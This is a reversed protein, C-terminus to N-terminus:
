MLQFHRLFELLSHAVIESNDAVCHKVIGKRIANEVLVFLHSSNSFFPFDGHLFEGPTKSMPTINLERRIVKTRSNCNDCWERYQQFLSQVEEFPFGFYFSKLYDLEEILSYHNRAVHNHKILTECLAKPIWAKGLVWIGEGEWAETSRAGGSGRATSSTQDGEWKNAVLKRSVM